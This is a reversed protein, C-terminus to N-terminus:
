WVWQSIEDVHQSRLYMHALSSFFWCVRIREMNERSEIARIREVVYLYGKSLTRELNPVNGAHSKIEGLTRLLLTRTKLFSMEATYAAKKRRTTQYSPLTSSVLFSFFPIFIFSYTLNRLLLTSRRISNRLWIMVRVTSQNPKINM